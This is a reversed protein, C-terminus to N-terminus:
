SVRNLVSNGQVTYLVSSDFTVENQHVFGCPQPKEPLLDYQHSLERRPRRFILRAGPSGQDVLNEYIAKKPEAQLAVLVVTYDFPIKATGDICAATVENELGFSKICRKAAAIAEKDRDVAYVRAGTLQNIKIATFPIGGCGINLVLDESTIAGLEIERRIVDNYHRAYLAALISGAVAKKELLAVVGPIIKM